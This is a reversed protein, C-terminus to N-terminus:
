EPAAAAEEATTSTSASTRFEIVILGVVISGSSSTDVRTLPRLMVDAKAGSALSKWGSKLTGTSALSVSAGDSTVLPNWTSGSDTSYECLLAGTVSTSSTIVASIRCTNFDSLDAWARRHVQGALESRGTAMSVIAMTSTDALLTIAMQYSSSGGGTSAITLANGADNYTLTVNSGAVLLSGVRDDVAEAFDTINSATHTHSTAAAGINAPTIGLATRADAATTSATGGQVVSLPLSLSSGVQTIQTGGGGGSYSSAGAGGALQGARRATKQIDALISEVTPRERGIELSTQLVGSQWSERIRLIPQDGSALRTGEAGVLRVLGGPRLPSALNARTIPPRRLLVARDRLYSRAFALAANYDTVSEAQETAWFIGGLHASDEADHLDPDTGADFADECTIIARYPGPALYVEATDSAADRVEIADVEITGSGRLNIGLEMAWAGSQYATGFPITWTHTSWANTLAGSAITQNSAVPFGTGDKGALRIRLKPSTGGGVRRLRVKMRLVQRSLVSFKSSWVTADNSDNDAASAVCRLAYGGEFPLERSVYTDLTATGNIEQRWDVPRLLSVDSLIMDDWLLSGSVQQGRFRWGVAGIPIPISAEYREWIVSSPSVAIETYGLTEAGGSDKWYLRIWGTSATPGSERRVHGGFTVIHGAVVRSDTTLSREFYEGSTDTELMDDGSLTAGESGGGAKYSAGSGLTWGSRAEFGPDGLWNGPAEGESAITAAEFGANPVLNPYRPNGGLIRVRTACGETLEQAEYSTVLASPVPQVLSVATDAPRFFLRDKGTVPEVDCGFAAGAGVMRVIEDFVQGVTRDTADLATLTVGLAPLEVALNPWSPSLFDRVLDSLARSADQGEPYVYLRDCPWEKLRSWLGLCSITLSDASQDATGKSRGRETIYARCRLQATDGPNAQTYVNVQDGPLLHTLQDFRAALPLTISEHGGRASLSWAADLIKGSPLFRPSGSASFITVLQRLPM